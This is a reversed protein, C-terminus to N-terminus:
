SGLFLFGLFYQLASGQSNYVYDSLNIYYSSEDPDIKNGGYDPYYEGEFDDSDGGNECTGNVCKGGYCNNKCPADGCVKNISPCELFGYFGDVKLLEGENTCNVNSNGIAVIFYSEYCTIEHCGVFYTRNGDLSFNGEICRCNLCFTEGINSDPEFLNSRCSIQRTNVPCYDTYYEGGLTNSSFYRFEFPIDDKFDGLDCYGYSLHTPDCLVGDNVCFEESIPQEDIICKDEIFECGKKYGFSIKTGYSYDPQYWGSDEFVALTLDSYVVDSELANVTLYDDRMMRKDWVFYAYDNQNELQIGPLSDCNFAERALKQVKPTSLFVQNALGRVNKITFLEDELYNTGNQNIFKKASEKNFGLVRAILHTMVMIFGDAGKDVIDVNASNFGIVAAIPQNTEPDNGCTTFTGGYLESYDYENKIIVLMDTSKILKGKYRDYLIKCSESEIFFEDWTSSSTIQHVKLANSFYVFAADIYKEYKEKEKAKLQSWDVYFRLTDWSSDREITKSLFREKPSKDPAEKAKFFYGSVTFGILILTGVVM